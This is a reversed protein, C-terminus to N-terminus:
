DSPMVSWEWKHPFSQIDVTLGKGWTSSTQVLNIQLNLKGRKNEKKKKRGKKKNETNQTQVLFLM